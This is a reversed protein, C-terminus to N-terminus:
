IQMLGRNKIQSELNSRAKQKKLKISATNPYQVQRAKEKESSIIMCFSFFSIKSRKHKKLRGKTIWWYFGHDLCLRASRPKYLISKCKKHNEHITFKNWGTWNCLCLFLVLPIKLLQSKWCEKKKKNSRDSTLLTLMTLEWCRLERKQSIRFDVFKPLIRSYINNDLFYETSKERSRITIKNIKM